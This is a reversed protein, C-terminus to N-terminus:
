WLLCCQRTDIFIVGIIPIIFVIWLRQLTHSVICIFSRNFLCQNYQDSPLRVSPLILMITFFAAHQIGLLVKM